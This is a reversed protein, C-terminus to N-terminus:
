ESKTESKRVSNKDKEKVKEKRIRKEDERKGYERRKRERGRARKRGKLILKPVYTIDNEIGGTEKVGVRESGRGTERM